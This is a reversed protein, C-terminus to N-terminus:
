SALMFSYAYRYKSEKAWNQNTTLGTLMRQTHNWCLPSVEPLDPAPSTVMMSDDDPILADFLESEKPSIEDGNDQLNQLLKKPDLFEPHVHSFTQNQNFGSKYVYDLQEGFKKYIIDYYTDQGSNFGIFLVAILAKQLWKM